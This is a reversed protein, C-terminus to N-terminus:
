PASAAESESARELGLTTLLDEHLEFWVMHCSDIGPEDVWKKEGRDARALAAEVVKVLQLCQTGPEIRGGHTRM